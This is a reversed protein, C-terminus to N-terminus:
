SVNVPCGKMADVVACVSEVHATIAAAAAEADGAVLAAVVAAHERASRAADGDPPGLTVRRSELGLYAHTDYVLEALIRSQSAEVISRHFRIDLVALEDVEASRSVATSFAEHADVIRAILSEDGRELVKRAALLELAGRARYLDVLEDANKVVWGQLAEREGRAARDLVFNGSGPRAEIYGMAALAKTAERVSVRSVNFLLGLERESPLREGPKFRGDRISQELQQRVTEARM